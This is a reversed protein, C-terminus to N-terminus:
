NIKAILNIFCNWSLLICSFRKINIIQLYDDYKLEANQTKQKLYVVNYIDEYYTLFNTIFDEQKSYLMTKLDNLGAHSLSCLYGESRLKYQYQCESIKIKDLQLTITEGCISNYLTECIANCDCCNSLNNHDKISKLYKETLVSRSKFFM